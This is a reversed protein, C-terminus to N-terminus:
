RVTKRRVWRDENEWVAAARDASIAASDTAKHIIKNSASYRSVYQDSNLHEASKHCLKETHTKNWCIQLLSHYYSHNNKMSLWVSVHIVQLWFCKDQEFFDYFKHM